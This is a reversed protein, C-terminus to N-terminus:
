VTQENLWKFEEPSLLKQSLPFLTEDERFIHLRLLEVLERGSNFALDYTIVRSENDRLRSALGLLNFCLSALQIFKVHDDEMLDVATKPKKGIGHEGSEILKKHILPFYYREEKQNHPLIHEDFYVFFKNFAESVEYSFSFGSNRFTILADDFDKVKQTVEQHEDILNRLFINMSEVEAGITNEKSYASPPDMASLEKITSDKTANTLIPDEEKLKKKHAKLALDKTVTEPTKHNTNM